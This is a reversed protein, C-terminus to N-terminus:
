RPLVLSTSMPVHTLLIEVIRYQNAHTAIGLVSAGTKDRANVNVGSALLSQVARAYGKAAGLLLANQSIGLKGQLLKAARIHEHRLAIEFAAVIEEDTSRQALNNFTELSARRASLVLPPDGELAHLNRAETNYLNYAFNGALILLLFAAAAIWPMGNRLMLRPSAKSAAAGPGREIIFSKKLLLAIVATGILITLWALVLSTLGIAVGALQIKDRVGLTGAAVTVFGALTFFGMAMSWLLAFNKCIHWGAGGERIEIGNLPRKALYLTFVVPGLAVAAICWLSARAKRGRADFFIWVTGAGVLALYWM